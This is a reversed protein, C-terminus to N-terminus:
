NSNSNHLTSAKSVVFSWVAVELGAGLVAVCVSRGAILVLVLLLHLDVCIVPEVGLVGVLGPFFAAVAGRVGVRLCEYVAVLHSPM